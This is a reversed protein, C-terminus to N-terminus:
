SDGRSAVGPTGARGAAMGDLYRGLAQDAESVQIAAGELLDSVGKLEARDGLVLGLADVVISKGAGTEGTFVTMGHGLDLDLREVVAFDEIHLHRLL